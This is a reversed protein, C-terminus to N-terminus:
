ILDAATEALWKGFQENALITPQRKASRRLTVVQFEAPMRKIYQLVRECNSKDISGSIAGCLAFQSAPEVPMPATEPFNLITEMKPLKEHIQCFGMFERAVGEGLAGAFLPLSQRDIDTVSLLKNVFEWTRPSAYTKDTHDPKFTYIHDPRFNLYSGIRSDFQKADAWDLWWKLDVEAELHVLRSQLATSMPNVIAGDTDLNGATVIAVNKHLCHTGVMRDLVLKYASAQVEVSASNFEDLFLLWGSYGEPLADGEIPFTSMPMYGARGAVVSPFGLLDTPDCQSLRLDILKLNFKKAIGHVVASKGIAPSGHIMPVVKAKLAMTVLEEAKSIKIKM